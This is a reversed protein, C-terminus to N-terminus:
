RRVLTRHRRACARVRGRVWVGCRAGHGSHPASERLASTHFRIKRKAHLAVADPKHTAFWKDGSYKELVSDAFLIEGAPLLRKLKALTNFQTPKM